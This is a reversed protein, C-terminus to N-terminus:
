HHLLTVGASNVHAEVPYPVPDFLAVEQHIPGWSLDIKTVEVGLMMHCCVVFSQAWEEEM